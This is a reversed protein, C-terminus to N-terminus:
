RGARREGVMATDHEAAAGVVHRWSADAEVSAPAVAVRRPGSRGTWAPWRSKALSQRTAQRVPPGGVRDVGAHDPGVEGGCTRNAVQDEAQGAAPRLRHGLPAVLDVHRNVPRPPIEPGVRRSCRRLARGSASSAAQRPPEPTESAITGPQPRQDTRDGARELGAPRLLRPAAIGAHPPGGRAARATSPKLLVRRESERCRRAVGTRASTSSSRRPGSCRDARLGPVARATSRAAATACVLRGNLRAHWREIRGADLV